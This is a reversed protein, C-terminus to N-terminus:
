NAGFVKRKFANPLKEILSIPNVGVAVIENQSLWRTDILNDYLRNSVIRLALNEETISSNSLKQQKQNPQIEWNCSILANETQLIMKGDDDDYLLINKVCDNAFENEAIMQLNVIKMKTIHYDFIKGDSFVAVIKPLVPHFEIATIPASNRPLTTHHRWNSKEDKRWICIKKCTTGVVLCQDDKSFLAIHPIEEVQKSINLKGQYSITSKSIDFIEVKNTAKFLYIQQSNHSFLVKIAPSFEKFLVKMKSVKLSENQFTLGFLRITSITSYILWEGNSSMAACVIFDGNKSKMEMLKEATSRESDGLKWVELYDPYRLLIQRVNNAVCISPNQLFPGCKKIEQRSKSYYSFGLFGDVSGSIIKPGAFTLAKVDHDHIYRQLFKIWRKFTQNHKTITTLCFIRIMPEVGSCMLVDEGENVALALIDKQFVQHSEIQSGNNGDWVTLQGRSDGSIITFNKLLQIAWVITEKKKEARGVSIKRIAHGTKTCWIRIVDISGTVIHDGNSSFKCCLIRGDQKDFVSKYILSDETLDFINIYGEETGAALCNHKSNVDLCWVSNGTVYQESKRKLTKLDYEIIKGALDGSFLRNGFWSLDEISYNNNVESVITKELVPVHTVDWIEISSDGRCLAIKGNLRNYSISEISRPSLNYFRVNHFDVGGETNKM